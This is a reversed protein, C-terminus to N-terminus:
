LIPFLISHQWTFGGTGSIPNLEQGFPDWLVVYGADCAIALAIPQERCVAPWAKHSLSVSFSVEREVLLRVGASALTGPAPLFETRPCLLFPIRLMVRSYFGPIWLLLGRGQLTLGLM